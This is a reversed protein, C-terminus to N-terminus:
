LNGLRGSQPTWAADATVICGNLHFNALLYLATEAIKEPPILIGGAAKAKLTLREEESLREDDVFGPCVGVCAIGYKGYGEACSRIISSLATKAAAYAANTLFGRVAETRTGGFLLIRGWRKEKMASLAASVAAGPMVLNSFVTQQWEQPSTKDLPKQLFEGRVVCLIDAKKAEESLPALCAEDDLNLEIFRSVCAPPRSGPKGIAAVAAGALALRQALASGIGSTAGAVLARKGEFIREQVPCLITRM